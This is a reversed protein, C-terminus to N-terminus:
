KDNKPPPQKIHLIFEIGTAQDGEISQKIEFPIIAPSVAMNVKELQASDL